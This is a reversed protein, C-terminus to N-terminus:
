EKTVRSLATLRANPLVEYGDVDVNVVAVNHEHWLPVIPLDDALQAQVEGYLRRREARDSVARAREVLDDVKASAYRWRNHAGPDAPSPIRSSHFYTYYFDPETIESTQMTALQFNGAKIDTFFTGFEFSRVEVAIGVEALQSAIVRAVAVRFQDASTKYSLRLRPAPGPGDPDPYGAEDLLAAARAPDFPYRAVEGRYAWHSGPLLGTALEARGGLKAAVIRERDIAHAIARRVRPDALVPDRNNFMLYTLIASPGSVVDVREREAVHGVLDVRVANQAFDASGGVLMLARANADRVVRVTLRALRPPADAHPSAVLEVQEPTFSAIAWPGAGVVRGGPFRGDPGAAARSVIGFEIDSLFTALPRHLRFRVTREDLADVAAFREAFAKRQLSGLAPDMVSRFTFVVDDATVPAGTSFRLGPRLVVQWTLEDLQDIREALLPVPEMAPNDVTTLGPAVLRSLKTDHNSLAFRPDLDKLAAEVLVILADDPTRRTKGACGPLAAAAAAAALAIAALALAGRRRGTIRQSASPTM